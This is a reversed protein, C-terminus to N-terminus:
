RRHWKPNDCCALMGHAAGIMYLRSKRLEKQALEINIGAGVTVAAQKGAVPKIVNTVTKFNVPEAGEKTPVFSELVRMGKMDKVNLLLGSAADNRDYWILDETELGVASL